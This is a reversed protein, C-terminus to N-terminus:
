WRGWVVVKVVEQFFHTGRAYDSNVNSCAFSQSAGHALEQIISTTTTLLQPSQIKNIPRFEQEFITEQGPQNNCKTTKVLEM